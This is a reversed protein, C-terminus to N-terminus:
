QDAADTNPGDSFQEDVYADYAAVTCARTRERNRREQRACQLSIECAVADLRDYGSPNTVRCTMNGTFPNVNIAIGVRKLREATVVIPDSEGVPADTPPATVAAQALTLASVLMM